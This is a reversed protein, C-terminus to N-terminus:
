HSTPLMKQCTLGMFACGRVEGTVEDIQTVMGDPSGGVAYILLIGWHLPFMVFFAALLGSPLVAAWRLWYRVNISM